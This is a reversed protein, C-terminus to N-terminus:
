PHGEAATRQKWKGTPREKPASYSGRVLSPSSSGYQEEIAVLTGTDQTRGGVTTYSRNFIAITVIRCHKSHVGVAAERVGSRRIRIAQLHRANDSQVGEALIVLRDTIGMERASEMIRAIRFSPAFLISIVTDARTSACPSPAIKGMGIDFTRDWRDGKMEVLPQAWVAAAAYNWRRAPDDLLGDISATIPLGVGAM